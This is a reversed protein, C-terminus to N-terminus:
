YKYPVLWLTVEFPLSVLLAKLLRVSSLFHFNYKLAELAVLFHPVMVGLPPQSFPVEARWLVQLCCLHWASIHQALFCHQVEQPNVTESSLV